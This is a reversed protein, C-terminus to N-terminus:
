ARSAGTMLLGIQSELGPNAEVIGVMHGQYMVGIRNALEILEELETSILITTIGKSAGNRIRERALQINHSDLGYTPKNLIVMDADETIERAFLTKQINGGSLRGIPTRESPTRIDFIRIQNKAFEYIKRWMTLGRHWYPEEGINKLVLNTAVPHESVIGDGIRDDTLYRVGRGRRGSVRLTSINEGNLKIQGSAVDRQGALIEALHKQGNGDIGAVGFIEGKAM